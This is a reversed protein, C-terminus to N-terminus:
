APHWAEAALEVAIRATRGDTDYPPNVEVLDMAVLGGHDRIRHMIIRVVDPHLGNPVATDVGPAHPPDVVDIDFSVCIPQGNPAIQQLVQDMISGMDEARCEEGPVYVSIGSELIAQEGPDLERQGIFACRSPDFRGTTGVVNGLADVPHGILAAASMGHANGSPSTEHTNLDAHADIWLLAPPPNGAKRFSEVVGAMSGASLAHDGGMVLPVDGRDVLESVRDKLLEAVRVVQELRGEASDPRPQEPVCIDGTDIVNPIADVIGAARLALPGDASGPRNGGADVPVGILCVAPQRNPQTNGNKSHTGTM